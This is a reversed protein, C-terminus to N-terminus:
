GWVGPGDWGRRGREQCGCTQERHRHAQKQRTSLDMKGIKYVVSLHYMHYTDKERHSIESLILIGLQMWTAALSM